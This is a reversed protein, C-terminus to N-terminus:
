YRRGPCCVSWWLGCGSIAPFALSEDQLSMAKARDGDCNRQLLADAYDCCTWAPEPRCGTRRGFTLADDFHSAAQDANTVTQSQLVLLLDASTITGFM